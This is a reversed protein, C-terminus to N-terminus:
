ENAAQRIIVDNSEPVSTDIFKVRTSNLVKNSLFGPMIQYQFDVPIHDTAAPTNLVIQQQQQWEMEHLSYRDYPM